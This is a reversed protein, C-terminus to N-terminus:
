IALQAKLTRLSNSPYPDLVMFDYYTGIGDVIKTDLLRFRKADEGELPASPTFFIDNQGMKGIVTADAAGSPVFVVFSRGMVWSQEPGNTAVRIQEREYILLSVVCRGGHNRAHYHIKFDNIQKFTVYDIFVCPNTQPPADGPGCIYNNTPDVEIKTTRNPSLVDGEYERPHDADQDGMGITPLPDMLTRDESWGFRVVQLFWKGVEHGDGNQDDFM